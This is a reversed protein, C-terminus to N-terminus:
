CFSVQLQFLCCDFLVEPCGLHEKANGRVEIIVPLRSFYWWLEVIRVNSIPPCLILM